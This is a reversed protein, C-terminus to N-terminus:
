ERVSGFYPSYDGSTSEEYGSSPEDPIFAMTVQHVVGIFLCVLAGGVAILIMTVAIDVGREFKTEM